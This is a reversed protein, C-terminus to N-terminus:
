YKIERGYKKRFKAMQKGKRNYISDFNIWVIFTIINKLNFMKNKSGTQM